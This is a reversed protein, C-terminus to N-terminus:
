RKVLSLEREYFRGNIKDGVELINGQKQVKYMVPIGRYIGIIKFEEDTFNITYGKVHRTGPDYKEVRVIDGINFKPKDPVTMENKRYLTMWVEESNEENVENPKMKISRHFSNNYNHTIDDLINIREIFYRWMMSKLTRNLREVISAKRNFLTYKRYTLTREQGGRPQIIPHWGYARVLTSFTKIDRDAFLEGM